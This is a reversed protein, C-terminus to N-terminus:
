LGNSRYFTFGALVGLLTELAVFTLGIANTIVDVRLVYTQETMYFVHLLVVTLSLLMSWALPQIMETRNGKSGQFLRAKEIILYFFAFSVEWGIVGSPYLFESGKYIYTLLTIAVFLNAFVGNFHYLIELPLSSLM